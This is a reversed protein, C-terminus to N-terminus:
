AVATEGTPISITFRGELAIHFLVLRRATPALIQVLTKEDGFNFAWPEALEGRLAIGSALRVRAIVDALLQRAAETMDNSHYSLEDSSVLLRLDPANLLM